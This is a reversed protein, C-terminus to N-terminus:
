AQRLHNLSQNSPSENYGKTKTWYYQDTPHGAFKPLEAGHVGLPQNGFKETMDDIM